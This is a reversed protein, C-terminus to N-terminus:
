IAGSRLDEGLMGLPDAMPGGTAFGQAHTFGMARVLEIQELREVGEATIAIQQSQAVSTIARMLDATAPNALDRVFSQDLKIRHHPLRGLYALASYGTGFDDLAIRIGQAILADLQAVTEPSDRMLVTETIELELRAAPFNNQVLASLIETVFNAQQFQLASVNVSLTLNGPWLAATRCATHLAWTGLPLILGTAEALPIFTKPQVTGLRPHRWRMLAEAGCMKGTQLDIYPQYVLKLQGNSPANALELELQSRELAATDFKREYVVVRQGESRKARRLARDARTLLVSVPVGKLGATVIGICAQMAITQNALTLPQAVRDLLMNAFRLYERESKASVIVFRDADLKILHDGVALASDLRVTMAALLADGAPAGLAENVARFRDLDLMLMAVPGDRHAGLALEIRRHEVGAPLISKSLWSRAIREAQANRAWPAPALIPYRPEEGPSEEALAAESRAVGILAALIEVADDIAGALGAGLRRLRQDILILGTATDDRLPALPQLACLSGSYGVSAPDIEVRRNERLAEEATDPLVLWGGPQDSGIAGRFRRLRETAYHIRIGGPRVQFYGAALTARRAEITRLLAPLASPHPLSATM